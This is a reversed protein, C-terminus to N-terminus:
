KRTLIEWLNENSQILKKAFCQSWEKQTVGEERYSWLRRTFQHLNHEHTVGIAGHVQHATTAVIKIAEDVRIRALAIENQLRNETIAAIMNEVATRIIVSEGVLLALHQQVLQFRHIPRGFQERTKTYQVTLDRVKEIMGALLAVKAAADMNVMADLQKATLATISKQLVKVNQLLVTDRPESALNIQPAVITDEIAVKVLYNGGAGTAITVLEDVHRAWPINTLKGSITQNEKLTLKENKNIAYTVKRNTIPMQALELFSNSITYEVFPVPVAYKGVLQYISLLDEVDGGAGGIKESIGIELMGNDKLISWINEAWKGEEVLDVTEKKVHEKFIKEVVDLLLEKVESM